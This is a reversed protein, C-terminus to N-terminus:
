AFLPTPKKKSMQGVGFYTQETGAAEVNSKRVEVTESEYPDPLTPFKGITENSSPDYTYEPGAEDPVEFEVTMFNDECKASKIHAYKASVMFNNDFKGVLASEYGPYLYAVDDGTINQGRKSVPGYLYPVAGKIPHFGIMGKWHNGVPKGNVFRALAGIGQNVYSYRDTIGRHYTAVRNLFFRNIYFFQGLM